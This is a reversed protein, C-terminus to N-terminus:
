HQAYRKVSEALFTVARASIELMNDAKAINVNIVPLPIYTKSFTFLVFTTESCALDPTRHM